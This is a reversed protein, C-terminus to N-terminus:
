SPRNNPVIIAKWKKGKFYARLYNRDKGITWKLIPAARTCTGNEIELGACFHPATIQVLIPVHICPGAPGHSGGKLGRPRTMKNHPHMVRRSRDRTM